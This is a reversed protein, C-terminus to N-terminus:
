LLTYDNLRLISVATELTVVIDDYPIIFRDEEDSKLALLNSLLVDVRDIRTNAELITKRANHSLYEIEIKQM